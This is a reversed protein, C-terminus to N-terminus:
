GRYYACDYDTSADQGPATLGYYCDCVGTTYQYNVIEAYYPAAACFNVCDTYSPSFISAELSLGEVGSLDCYTNCYNYYTYGGYFSYGGSDTCDNTLTTSAVVSTSTLTVETSIPPPTSTTVSTTDIIITSTDSVTPTVDSTVFSTM